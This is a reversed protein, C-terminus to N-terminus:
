DIAKSLSEQFWLGAKLLKDDFEFVTAIAGGRLTNSEQLDKARTSLVGASRLDKLFHM